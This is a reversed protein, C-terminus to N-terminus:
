QIVRVQNNWARLLQLGETVSRPPAIGTAFLKDCNLLVRSPRRAAQMLERSTKPILRQSPVEFQECIMQALTLRDLLDPGTAHFTGSEGRNILHRTIRALDETYTPSGWQDAPVPVNEGASIRDVLRLVFNRRHVDPGYVSATRIILHCEPLADRLEKEALAKSNSYVNLPNVPDNEVFSDKSGDFVHDTSFLVVRAGSRAAREALTRPGHVNVSMCSAEETECRDVNCMAGAILILGPNVHAVIAALSAPDSLDVSTESPGAHQHSAAMVPVDAFARRLASGLQGSAGILLIPATVVTRSGGPAHRWAEAM